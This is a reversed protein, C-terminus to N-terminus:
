INGLTPSRLEKFIPLSSEDWRAFTPIRIVQCIPAGILLNILQGDGSFDYYDYSNLLKSGPVHM